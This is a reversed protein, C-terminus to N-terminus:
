IPNLRTYFKNKSPVGAFCMCLPGISQYLRNFKLTFKQIDFGGKKMRM